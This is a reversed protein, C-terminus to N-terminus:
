DLLSALLRGYRELHLDGLFERHARGYASEALEHALVRTQLLRDVAAGFAGLDAPDEILLGEVGDDIQDVIGGVRSAVVARHKWMAEVVTLGFGEALSKQAVVTAHRQVANAITAAAAPDSLPVSALHVRARVVSPLARWAALCAALVPGGEPDDDVGRVSPGTLLLHAGAAEDVHEAFALMVGLMDKQYDWRSLQVVLPADPPLFATGLLDVRADVLGTTGDEHRFRGGASTVIPGSTAFIGVHELISAVDDPDLHENKASFPDISPTIVHLRDRDVWAPAFAARTFVFADVADLYPRLFAWGHETEENPEDRGIHCRWVVPHGARQLAPALGATQPDHLLVIDGPALRELLASANPALVTEYRARVAADLPGGDGRTGYLHNHIRKTIEFFDPTGEIVLWRTAVDVGLAYALLTQLLEAVGGGNATSNVNVVTRGGLVTRAVAAAGAFAEARAAGILAGLRAPEIPDVTIESLM